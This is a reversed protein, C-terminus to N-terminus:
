PPSLGAPTTGRQTATTTPIYNKYYGDAGLQAMTFRVSNAPLSTPDLPNGNEDFLTFTVVPLPGSTNVSQVSSQINGTPTAQATGAGAGEKKSSGCGYLMAAVTLLCVGLLLRRVSNGYM